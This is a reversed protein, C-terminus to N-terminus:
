FMVQFYSGKPAGASGQDPQMVLGLFHGCGRSWGSAYVGYLPHTAWWHAIIVILCAIGRISDLYKIKKM